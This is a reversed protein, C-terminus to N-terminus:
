SKPSSTTFSLIKIQVANTLNRLRFKDADGLRSVLRNIEMVSKNRVTIPPCRSKKVSTKKPKPSGAVVSVDSINDDFDDMPLIGFENSVPVAPQTFVQSASSNAQNGPKRLNSLSVGRRLSTNKSNGALYLNGSDNASKNFTLNAKLKEKNYDFRELTYRKIGPPGDVLVVPKKKGM